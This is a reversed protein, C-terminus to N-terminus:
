KRVQLFKGPKWQLMLSGLKFAGMCLGQKNRLKLQHAVCLLLLSVVGFGLVFFIEWGFASCKRILFFVSMYWVPMKFYWSGSWGPSNRSREKQYTRNGYARSVIKWM